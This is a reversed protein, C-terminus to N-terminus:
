RDIGVPLRVSVTTGRDPASHIRLQGQMSEVFSRALFLGLGMRDDTNKTTFFPEAARSLTTDNMGLGEDAFELAVFGNDRQASLSVKGDACADFANRTLDEVLRTLGRRPGVLTDVDGQVNWRASESPDLRQRVDAVLDDFPFETPSEGSLEGGQAAIQDLVDRCRRVEQRILSADQALAEKNAAETQLQEIQRQMETAAVAITSLPTGLEHAAGAALNAISALKGWRHARENAEALAHAQAQLAGSLRSVFYAILTAALVFAIFMGYLHTQFGAGGHNHAGGPDRFAFLLLFGAICLVALAWTKASDLMVASLAIYVLYVATFPNTPGGSLYLMATLMIIDFAITLAIHRVSLSARRATFWLNSLAVVGILTWLAPLNDHMHFVRHAVTVAIAMSIVAGWRM